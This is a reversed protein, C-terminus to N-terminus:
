HKLVVFLSLVVFLCSIMHLIVEKVTDDNRWIEERGEKGRGM